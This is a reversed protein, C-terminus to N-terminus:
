RGLAYIKFSCVCLISEAHGLTHFLLMTNIVSSSFTKLQSSANFISYFWFLLGEAFLNGESYITVVSLCQIFCGKQGIMIYNAILAQNKVTHLPSGM